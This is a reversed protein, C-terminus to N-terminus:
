IRRYKVEAPAERDLRRAVPAATCVVEVIDNRTVIAFCRRPFDAFMGDSEENLWRLFDSDIIQFCWHGSFNAELLRSVFKRRDGEDTVRHGRVNTFKVEIRSRDDGGVIVTLGDCDVISEVETGTLQIDDFLRIIEM